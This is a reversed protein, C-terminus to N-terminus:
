PCHRNALGVLDSKWDPHNNNRFCDDLLQRLSPPSDDDDSEPSQCALRVLAVVTLVSVGTNAEM